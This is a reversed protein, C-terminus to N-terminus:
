AATGTVIAEIASMPEAFVSTFGGSTAMMIEFARPRKEIQNSFVVVVNGEKLVFVGDAFGSAHNISWRANIGHSSLDHEAKQMTYSVAGYHKILRNIVDLQRSLVANTLQDAAYALKAESVELSIASKMCSAPEPCFSMGGIRNNHSVENM